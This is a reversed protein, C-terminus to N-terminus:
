AGRKIALVARLCLADGVLAIAVIELGAMTTQDSAMARAQGTLYLGVAGFTAVAICCVFLSLAVLFSRAIKQGQSLSVLPPPNFLHNFWSVIINGAEFVAPGKKNGYSNWEHFIAYIIGIERGIIYHLLHVGFSAKPQLKSAEPHM